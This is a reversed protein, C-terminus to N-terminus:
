QCVTSHEPTDVIHTADSNHEPAPLLRELFATKPCAVVGTRIRLTAHMPKVHVSM